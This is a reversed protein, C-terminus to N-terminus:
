QETKPSAQHRLTELKDAIGTSPALETSDPRTVAESIHLRSALRTLRQPNGSALAQGCAYAVVDPIWLHPNGVDNARVIDLDAKVRGGTKLQNITALDHHNVLEHRTIPDVGPKPKRTKTELPDRSDFMTMQVDSDLHTMLHTVCVQRTDEFRKTHGIRRIVVDIHMSKDAAIIEEADFLDTERSGRMEKSHIAHRHLRDTTPQRQAIQSLDRITELTAYSNPNVTVACMLYWRDGATNRETEDIFAHRRRVKPDTRESSTTNGM